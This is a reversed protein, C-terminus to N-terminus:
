ISKGHKKKIDFYFQYYEPEMTFQSNPSPLVNKLTIVYNDFHIPTGFAIIEESSAGEDTEILTRVRVTGAQICEVGEPCRNDEVVERPIIGIGLATGYDVLGLIITGSTDIRSLITNATESGEPDLNFRTSLNYYLQAVGLSGISKAASTLEQGVYKPIVSGARIQAQGTYRGEVTEVEKFDETKLGPFAQLLMSADFGEIPQGVHETARAYLRTEFYDIQNDVQETPTSIIAPVAPASTRIIVVVLVLIIIAFLILLINKM